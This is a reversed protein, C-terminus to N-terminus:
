HEQQVHCFSVCVCMPSFHRGELIACVCVCMNHLYTHMHTIMRVIIIPQQQSRKCNRRSKERQDSPHCCLFLFCLFVLEDRQIHYFDVRTHTPPTTTSVEMIVRGVSVNDAWMDFYVRPFGMKQDKKAAAVSSSNAFNRVSSHVFTSQAASCRGLPAFLSSARSSRSAAVACGGGRSLMTPVASRLLSACLSAMKDANSTTTRTNTPQPLHPTPRRRPTAVTTTTSTGTTRRTGLETRSSRPGRFHLSALLTRLATPCFHREVPRPANQLTTMTAIENVHCICFPIKEHM